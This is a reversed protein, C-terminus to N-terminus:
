GPPAGAASPWDPPGAPDVGAAPLPEALPEEPPAIRFTQESRGGVRTEAIVPMDTPAAVLV